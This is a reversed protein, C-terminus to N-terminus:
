SYVEATKGKQLRRPSSLLDTPPCMHENAWMMKKM